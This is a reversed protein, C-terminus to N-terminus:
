KLDKRSFVILGIVLSLIITASVSICFSSIGHRLMGDLYSTPSYADIFHYIRYTEPSLRCNGDDPFLDNTIVLTVIGSLVCLSIPLFAGFSNTGFLYTIVTFFIALAVASGTHVLTYTLLNAPTDLFGTKYFLGFLLALIHILACLYVAFVSSVVVMSGIIESRKAGSIVKNRITGERFDTYVFLGTFIALLFPIASARDMILEDAYFEVEASTGVNSIITLLLDGFFFYLFSALIIKKDRLLRIFDAVMLRYM